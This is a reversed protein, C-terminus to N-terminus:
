EVLIYNSKELGKLMEQKMDETIGCGVKYQSGFSLLKRSRIKELYECVTCIRKAPNGGWVENQPVNKTVVSGAGIISNDGITLGPLITVNAGIFCGDGITVKGVKSYGLSKKTSADHALLHVKSSFTVNNGISILFCFSPDFFCGSGYSFGTGVKLGDAKLKDIQPEGRLRSIIKKIIAKISM